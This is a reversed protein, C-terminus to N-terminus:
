PVNCSNLLQIALNAAPRRIDLNWSAKTPDKKSVYFFHCQFQQYMSTTNPDPHGPRYTKNLTESWGANSSLIDLTSLVVGGFPYSTAAAVTRGWATPYVALTPSYSSVNTWTTHDILDFGLWPDAIVPYAIQIGQGEIIQTVSNGSLAYHSNLLTGNADIAWAPALGGIVHSSSDIIFVLGSIPDQILSHGEPL